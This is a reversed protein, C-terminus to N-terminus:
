TEQQQQDTADVTVGRVRTRKLADRVEVSRKSCMNSYVTEAQAPDSMVSKLENLIHDKKISETRKAQRRVLKGDHMQLEDIERTKMFELISEGLDAKRKKLDRLHKASETLEDHLTVYAKVADKFDADTLPM